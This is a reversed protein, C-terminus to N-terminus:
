AAYGKGPEEQSILWKQISSRRYLVERGIKTRPPGIGLVSWRDLTRPNKGLERAFEEKTVFESLVDRSGSM